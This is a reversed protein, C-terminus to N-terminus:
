CAPEEVILELPDPATEIRCPCQGAPDGDFEIELAPEPSTVRITHAYELSLCPGSPLPGGRYLSALVPWLRRWSLNRLSLVYFRDDQATLTHHIKLGSAVHYTKGVAVNFVRQLTRSQGDLTLQLTRPRYTLLVRLLALLTGLVDGVYRRLGGNALRAVSAGLGLNACCAFYANSQASPASHAAGAEFTVRGVRIARSRAAALTEVAPLLATPVHYSRCFDPSTGLHVVGMRASSLRHGDEDFFGNLVRNITGDGGVAVIIDDGRQNADRSLVRAQDLASCLQLDYRLGLRQLHTLLEALPQRARGDRAHPNAIVCYRM